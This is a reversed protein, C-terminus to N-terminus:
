AAVSAIVDRLAGPEPVPPSPRRLWMRLWLCDHVRTLRAESPRLREITRALTRVLAQEGTAEILEVAPFRAELLGAHARRFHSEEVVGCEVRLGTMKEVGLALVPDPRDEFGLYLIREAAVRLPLAGFADVFLRPVLSALSDSSELAPSLVPCNWQLGLARAVLQESVGQSRVLWRGLRGSGARRQAELAGRLQQETIWGQELMALGIPIRHRYPLPAATRGERERRVASAVQAATCAPSCSWGGEFVPASRSRWLHLWGTGCGPNACGTLLGRPLLAGRGSPVAIGAERSRRVAVERERALAGNGAAPTRMLVPM